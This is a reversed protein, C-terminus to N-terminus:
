MRLGKLRSTILTVHDLLQQWNLDGGNLPPLIPLLPNATRTVSHIVERYRGGSCTYVAAPATGITITAKLVRHTAVSKSVTTTWSGLVRVGPKPSIAKLWEGVLVFRDVVFSLPVLEWAVSPLDSLTVGLSRRTATNWSSDFVEYLVGSAVKTSLSVERSMQVPATLGPPNSTTSYAEVGPLWEVLESSRAVKRIPRLFADHADNRKTWAELARQIDYMLPKMGLRYELWASELASKADHLGNNVEKVLNTSGRGNPGARSRRYTKGKPQGVLRKSRSIIRDIMELSSKLPSRLMQLTERAEALTILTDFDAAAIRAHAKTLTAAKANSVRTDFWTPKVAPLCWQCALTGEVVRTGWVPHPGFSLSDRNTERKDKDLQLSNMVITGQSKLANFRPTVTDSIVNKEGDSKSSSPYVTSGSVSGNPNYDTNKQYSSSLSDQTRTRM